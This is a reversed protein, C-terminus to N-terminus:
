ALRSPDPPPPSSLMEPVEGTGWPKLSRGQPPTSRSPWRCCCSRRRWGRRSLRRGARYRRPSGTGRVARRDIGSRPPDVPGVPAGARDGVGVEVSRAAAALEVEGPRGRAVGVATTISAAPPPDVPGVAARPSCSRRASRSPDPPPAQLLQGSRCASSQPSRKPRPRSPDRDSDDGRDNGPHEREQQQQRLRGAGFRETRPLRCDDPVQDRPWGVGDIPHAGAQECVPRLVLPHARTQLHHWALTSAREADGLCM